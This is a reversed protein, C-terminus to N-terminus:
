RAVLSELHARVRSWEADLISYRASNRPKIDSALRHARLIGEFRGGIREIADRSRANREDTHFCVRFVRWVEFAHKLMLLKAETNIPTRIADRTLWTYGIECGDYRRDTPVTGVPWPWREIEFFRTTGVIANDELRRTVFPVCTGAAKWTLATDIYREMLMEGQPVASWEYLPPDAASASALAAAHALALPELRVFRGELTV